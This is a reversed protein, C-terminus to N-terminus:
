GAGGDFPCKEGFLTAVSVNNKRYTYSAGHEISTNLGHGSYPNPMKGTSNGFFIARRFHGHANQNRLHACFTSGPIPTRVKEQLSGCPIARAHTRDPVKRRFKWVFHRKRAETGATGQLNGYLNSGRVHGDANENRVSACLTSGPKPMPKGRRHEGRHARMHRSECTHEQIHARRQSRIYTSGYTQKCIHARTQASM